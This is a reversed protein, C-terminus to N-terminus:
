IGKKFKVSVYRCFHYPTPEVNYVNSCLRYYAKIMGVKFVHMHNVVEVM